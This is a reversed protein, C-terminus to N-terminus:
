RGFADPHRDKVHVKLPALRDGLRNTTEGTPNVNARISVDGLPQCFHAGGMALLPDQDIAGPDHAAGLRHRPALGVPGQDM